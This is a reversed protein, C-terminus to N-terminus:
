GKVQFLSAKAHSDNQILLSKGRISTGDSLVGDLIYKRFVYGSAKFNAAVLTKNLGKGFLHLTGSGVAVFDGTIKGGKINIVSKDEATVNGAVRGGSINTTSSDYAELRVLIRGGRLNVTSTNYSQVINRVTGGSMSFASRNYVFVIGEIGGAALRVTPSAPNKATDNDRQNAYGVVADGHLVRNITADHSFYLYPQQGHAAHTLGILLLAAPLATHRVTLQIM